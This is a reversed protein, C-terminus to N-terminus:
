HSILQYGAWFFPHNATPVEGAKVQKLRPEATPDLEASRALLVSRQWAAAPRNEALGVLFEHMLDMSMQGGTRWRSLLVTRCGSGLLACTSILMEDGNSRGRLGDEAMTHYGPLVVVDPAGWPLKLWDAISGGRGQDIQAPSWDLPDKDNWEIDDLVILQHWVSSALNTTIPLRPKRIITSQPSEQQLKEATSALLTDTEKSFLRGHVITRIGTPMTPRKDGVALGITPAYRIQTAEILSRTATGEGPIQLMEFPLYWLYGDPVIVLETTNKLVEPPLGESIATFLDTAPKKWNENTLRDAPLVQDRDYNGIERMLNQITTRLRASTKVPWAEYRKDATLLLVYQVRGTMIFSLIAQGPELGAIIEEQTRLPPFMQRAPEPLLALQHLIEEQEEALRKIGAVTSEYQKRQDGDPQVPLQSLQTKLKTTEQAIDVLRPFRAQLNQRQQRTANDLLPEPCELVWRLSLLRGGLPLSQYFKHRRLMESILLLSETERNAVSIELWRELVDQHPTLQLTFTERLDNRWDDDTPERLLQAFLLGAVRPSLQKSTYLANTLQIQFLRPSTARQAVIGLQLADLGVPIKGSQFAIAATQFQFWAGLSTSKVDGRGIAARAQALLGTADRPLGNWIANESAAMSLGAVARSWRERQCWAIAPALPAFIGNKTHGHLAAAEVLAEQIVDAQRFQAATISAEVLSQMAVDPQNKLRALHGLELLALSTLPHDLPGISLSAQLTAFADDVDGAASQALGLQVGVLMNAWHQPPLSRSSFEKVLQDTLPMEPALPGLIQRRRRLSLGTCRMIETVDLPILQNTAAVGGRQYAAEIDTGQFSNIVDFHGPRTNRGSPGWPVLIAGQYPMVNPPFQIRKLWGRHSIALQLAIEYQKLALDLNGQQYFCEGMMTAYCIGDVWVGATSRMGGNSAADFGKVAERLDGQYYTALAFRYVDKPYGRGGGLQAWGTTAPWVVALAMGLVLFRGLRGCGQVTLAVSTLWQGIRGMIVTGRKSVALQRIHRLM